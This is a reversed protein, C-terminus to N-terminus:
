NLNYNDNRILWSTPFSRGCWWWVPRRWNWLARGDAPGAHAGPVRDALSGAWVVYVVSEDGLRFLSGNTLNCRFLSDTVSVPLRHWTYMLYLFALIMPRIFWLIYKGLGVAKPVAALALARCEAHRLLGYHAYLSSGAAALSVSSIEIALFIYM